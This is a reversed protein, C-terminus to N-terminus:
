LICREAQLISALRDVVRENGHQQSTFTELVEVELHREHHGSHGLDVTQLLSELYTLENENGLM